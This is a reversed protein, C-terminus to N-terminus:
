AIAFSVRTDAGHKIISQILKNMDIRWSKELQDAQFEYVRVLRRDQLDGTAQSIYDSSTSASPLPLLRWGAVHLDAFSALFTTPTFLRYPSPRKPTVRSPESPFSMAASSTMTRLSWIATSRQVSPALAATRPFLRAFLRTMTFALDYFLIEPAGSTHHGSCSSHM